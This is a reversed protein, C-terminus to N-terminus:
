KPGVCFKLLTRVTKFKLFEEPLKYRVTRVLDEMSAGKTDDLSLKSM